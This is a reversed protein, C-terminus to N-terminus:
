QQQKKKKKGGGSTSVGPTTSLHIYLRDWEREREEQKTPDSEDKYQPHDPLWEFGKLFPEDLEDDARKKNPKHIADLADKITVGTRNRATVVVGHQFYLNVARVLPTILPKKLIDKDDVSTPPTNIKWGTGQTEKAIEIETKSEKLDKMSVVGSVMSSARRSKEKSADKSTDKSTDKPLDKLTDKSTDKDPSALGEVASDVKTLPESM